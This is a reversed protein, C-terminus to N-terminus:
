TNAMVAKIRMPWRSPLLLNKWSRRMRAMQKADLTADGYVEQHLMEIILM